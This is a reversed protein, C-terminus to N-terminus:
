FEGRIGLEPILPLWRDEARELAINGQADFEYHFDVRCNNFRNQVNRIEAFVM